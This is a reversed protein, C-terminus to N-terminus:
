IKLSLKTNTVFVVLVVFMNELNFNIAVVFDEKLVFARIGLLVCVPFELNCKTFLFFIIAFIFPCLPLLMLSPVVCAVHRAALADPCCCLCSSCVGWFYFGACLISAVHFDLSCVLFRRLSLFFISNRMFPSSYGAIIIISVPFLVEVFLAFVCCICLIHVHSYLSLYLALSLSLYVYFSFCMAVLHIFTVAFVRGFSRFFLWVVVVFFFHPFNCIFAPWGTQSFCGLYASM